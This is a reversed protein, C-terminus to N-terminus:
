ITDIICNCIRKMNNKSGNRLLYDLIRKEIEWDEKALNCKIFEAESKLKEVTDQKEFKKFEQILQVLTFTGGGNIGFHYENIFYKFTEIETKQNM